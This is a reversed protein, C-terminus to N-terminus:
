EGAMEAGEAGLSAFTMLGQAASTFASLFENRSAKEQMEDTLVTSDTAIEFAFGRAKEDRLLEIVGEIPVAESVQQLQPAYKQIVQQQAQQFQQQVQAPDAQEGQQRAAQVAERAKEAVAELEKE